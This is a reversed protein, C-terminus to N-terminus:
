SFSISGTSRFPFTRKVTGQANVQVGVGVFATITFYNSANPYLLLTVTTGNLAATLMAGQVNSDTQDWDFSVTGTVARQGSEFEKWTNQLPSVDFFEPGANDISWGILAAGSNAGIKVKGNKGHIPTAM